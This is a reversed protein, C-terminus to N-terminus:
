VDILEQDKGFRPKICTSLIEDDFVNDLVGDTALVVVDNHSVDHLNDDADYPLDCHTGCQYPFDFSYTQEKTRFIKKLVERSEQRFIMYGSDGLNCTAM